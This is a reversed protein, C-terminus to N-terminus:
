IDLSPTFLLTAAARALAGVTVHCTPQTELVTRELPVGVANM